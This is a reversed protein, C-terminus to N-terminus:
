GFAYDINVFRILAPDTNSFSIIRIPASRDNPSLMTAIKCFTAVYRQSYSGAATAQPDINVIKAASCKGAEDHLSILRHGDTATLIVGKDPHPAIYVGNLYYRTEETSRCENAARFYNM